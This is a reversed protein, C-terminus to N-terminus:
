GRFRLVQRAVNAYQLLIFPRLAEPAAALRERFEALAADNGECFSLEETSEGLQRLAERHTPYLRAGHAIATDLAQAWSEADAYAGAMEEGFHLHVRGKNGSFGLRLHEMDEGAAKRYAGTHARVELEAAKALDCPDLEFSVTLPVLRVRGLYGEISEVEKRYALMLMKLLAPETSDIGNKARGERQAIWVSQGEELSHRVYEATQRLARLTDKAGTTGREVVFGKNVRILDAAFPVAFLNDGVAIRCTDFGHRHLELNLFCSDLAIDRHNGVFLYAANTDLRDLGSVTLGDTTHAVVHDLGDAVLAQIDAVTRCRRLKAGLKRGALYRSLVPLWRHLKPVALRAAADALQRDTLLREVM